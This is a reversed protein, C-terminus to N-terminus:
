PMGISTKIATAALAVGISNATQLAWKGASRLHELARGQDGEQAARSARGVEALAIDNEESDPQKRLAARLLALEQALATLDLSSGGGAQIQNFTANPATANSGVAGAQQVYNNDGMRAGSQDFHIITQVTPTSPFSEATEPTSGGEPLHDDASVPFDDTTRIRALTENDLSADTSITRVIDHQLGTLESPIRPFVFAADLGPAVSRRGWTKIWAALSPEEDVDPEHLALSSYKRLQQLAAHHDGLLFYALSRLWVHAPHTSRLGKLRQLADAPRGLCLDSFALQYNLPTASLGGAVPQIISAKLFDHDLQHLLCDILHELNKREFRKVLVDRIKQLGERDGGAFALLAAQEIVLGLNPSARELRSTHSVLLDIAERYRGEAALLVSALQYLVWSSPAAHSLPLAHNLLGILDRVPAQREMWVKIGAFYVHALAEAPLVSDAQRLAAVTASFTELRATLRVRLVWVQFDRSQSSAVTVHRLALLLDEHGGLSELIRAATHRAEPYGSRKGRLAAIITSATQRAVKPDSPIPRSKGFNALLYSGYRAALDQFAEEEGALVLHYRAEVFESGRSALDSKDKAKFHRLFHAAALSHAERARGQDAEMRKRALERTVPNLTVWGTSHELLFRGILDAYARGVDGVKPAFPQIGEKVFPKRYVSLYELLLLSPSELRGIVRDLFEAELKGVLSPSFAQYRVDWAEPQLEILDDLSDGDVLCSVLARLARPNRGVWQVVDSRLDPAIEGEVRRSVLLQDLLQMADSEDPPGLTIIPLEITRAFPLRQDTVLLLRAKSHRTALRKLLNYFDAPPLKTKPDVLEHFDDIVALCETRMMADFVKILNEDIRKAMLDSGSHEFEAALEFLVDEVGLSETTGYVHATPLSTSQALKRVLTSKGVGTFGELVAVVPGDRIWDLLLTSPTPTGGVTDKM